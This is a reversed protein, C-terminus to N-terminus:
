ANQKGDKKEEKMTELCKYSYCDKYYESQCIADCRNKAPYACEDSGIYPCTECKQQSLVM